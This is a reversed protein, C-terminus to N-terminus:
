NAVYLDLDGDLDYDVFASGTSWSRDDDLIARITVDTFRGGENRYLANTGDCDFFAAGSGLAEM